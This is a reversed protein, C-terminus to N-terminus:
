LLFGQGALRILLSHRINAPQGDFIRIGLKLTLREFITVAADGALGQLAYIGPRNRDMFCAAYQEGHVRFVFYEANKRLNRFQLLTILGDESLEPETCTQVTNRFIKRGAAVADWIVWSSRIFDVWLPADPFSELISLIRKTKFVGMRTPPNELMLLIADWSSPNINKGLPYPMTTLAVESELYMAISCTLGSKHQRAANLQSRFIDETLTTDAFAHPFKKNWDPVYKVSPTLYDSVSESEPIVQLKTNPFWARMFGEIQKVRSANTMYKGSGDLTSLTRYFWDFVGEGDLDSGATTKETSFARMARRQFEPFLERIARKEDLSAIIKSFRSDPSNHELYARFKELSISSPTPFIELVDSNLAWSGLNSVLITQYLLAQIEEERDSGPKIPLLQNVRDFWERYPPQGLEGIPLLSIAEDLHVPDELAIYSIQAYTAVGEQVGWQNELCLALLDDWAQNGSRRVLARYLTGYTTNTVLEQHSEEHALTARSWKNRTQIPSYVVPTQAPTYFGLTQLLENNLQQSLDAKSAKGKTRTRSKRFLKDFLM